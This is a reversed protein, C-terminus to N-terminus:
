ILMLFLNLYIIVQLYYKIILVGFKDGYIKEEKENSKIKLDADIDSLGSVKETYINSMIFELIFM